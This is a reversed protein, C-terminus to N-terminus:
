KKSPTASRQNRYRGIMFSIVIPIYQLTVLIQDALRLKAKVGGKAKSQGAQQM